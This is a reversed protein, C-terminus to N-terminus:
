MVMHCFAPPLYGYLGSFVPMVSAGTASYGDYTELVGVLQAM